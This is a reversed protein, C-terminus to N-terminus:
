IQKKDHQVRSFRDININNSGTSYVKEYAEKEM